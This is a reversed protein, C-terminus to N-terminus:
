RTERKWTTSSSDLPRAAAVYDMTLYLICHHAVLYRHVFDPMDHSEEHFSTLCIMHSKMAIMHSKM